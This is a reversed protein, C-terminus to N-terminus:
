WLSPHAGNEGGGGRKGVMFHNSESVTVPRPESGFRQVLYEDTWRESAKVVDPVNVLIFPVEHLRLKDAEARQDPDSFDFRAITGEAIGPVNPPTAQRATTDASLAPAVRAAVICVDDPPWAELFDGLPRMEPYPLYEKIDMEKSFMTGPPMKEQRGSMQARCTHISWGWLKRGGCWIFFLTVRKRNPAYLAGSWLSHLANTPIHM